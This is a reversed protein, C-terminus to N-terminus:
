RDELGGEPPSRFGVVRGAAWWAGVALPVAVYGDVAYHWGLHVSGVFILLAWAVAVAFVLRHVSWAAAAFYAAVGVHLSPMAAIGDYIMARRGNFAEWLAVQLGRAATEQDGLFALLPAFRDVDGTFYGYYVPGGSGLLNAVLGGAVVWLLFFGLFFRARWRLPPWMSVVLLVTAMVGYWSVYVHDLFATVLPRGPLAHLWTWPDRFGHLAADLRALFPDWRYGLLTPIGRKVATHVDFLPEILWIFLFAGVVREVMTPSLWLRKLRSGLAPLSRAHRVMTWYFTTVLYAGLLLAIMLPRGLPTAGAMERGPTLGLLRAALHYALVVGVTSGYWVLLRRV